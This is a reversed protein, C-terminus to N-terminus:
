RIKHNKSKLRGKINENKLSNKSDKIGKIKFPMPDIDGEHKKFRKDKSRKPKRQIDNKPM